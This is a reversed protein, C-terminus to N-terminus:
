FWATVLNKRDVRPWFRFLAPPMPSHVDQAETEKWLGKRTSPILLRNVKSKGGVHEKSSLICSLRPSAM